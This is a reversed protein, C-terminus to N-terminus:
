ALGYSLVQAKAVPVFSYEKQILKFNVLKGLYYVCRKNFRAVLTHLYGTIKKEIKSDLIMFYFALAGLMTVLHGATAM